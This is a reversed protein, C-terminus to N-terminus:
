ATPLAVLIAARGSATIEAITSAGARCVIVDAERMEDAMEYLFAEVRAALGAEDYACRVVDVDPAGTQHTVALDIGGAALRPAAAAMALNIAHAGQSGGFILVRVARPPADARDHRSGAAVSVFAPRVPNGAVFGTGPFFCLTEEFTVAAARVFRALLRNTLGPLANQELVMTPLGRIAALALVPGSAYGGVGVVVDPRQRSVM